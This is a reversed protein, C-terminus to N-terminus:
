APLCASDPLCLPPARTRPPLAHMCSSPPLCAPLRRRASRRPACAGRGAAAAARHTTTPPVGAPPAANPEWHNARSRRRRRDVSIGESAHPARRRACRVPRGAASPRAAASQRPARSRARHCRWWSPLCQSQLECWRNQQSPSRAELEEIFGERCEMIAPAGKETKICGAVSHDDASEASHAPVRKLVWRFSASGRGQLAMQRNPQSPSRSAHEQIFGETGGDREERQGEGRKARKSRATGAVVVKRGGCRVRAM